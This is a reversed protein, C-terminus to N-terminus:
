GTAPAVPVVASGLVAGSPGGNRLQVAEGPNGFTSDYNVNFVVSTLGTTNDTSNGTDSAAQLDLNAFDVALLQRTELGEVKLDRQGNRKASKARRLQGHRGALSTRPAKTLGLLTMYAAWLTRAKSFVWGYFGVLPTRFATQWWSMRAERRSVMRLTSAKIRERLALAKDRLRALKVHSKSSSGTNHSRRISM